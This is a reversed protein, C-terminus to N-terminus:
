LDLVFLCVFVLFLNLLLFVKSLLEFNDEELVWRLETDLFM